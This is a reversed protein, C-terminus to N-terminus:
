GGRRTRRKLMRSAGVLMDPLSEAGQEGTGAAAEVLPHLGRRLSATAPRVRFQREGHPYPRFQRVARPHPRGGLSGCMLALVALVAQRSDGPDTRGDIVRQLEFIMAVAEDQDREEYSPRLSGHQTWRQATILEDLLTMRDSRVHRFWRWWPVGPRRAVARQVTDLVRDDSDIRADFVAPGHSGARDGSGAPEEASPAGGSEGIRGDLILDTFLAARLGIALPADHHLRGTAPDRAIRLLQTALRDPVRGNHRARERHNARGPVAGTRVCWDARPEVVRAVARVRGPAAGAESAYTRHTRIV